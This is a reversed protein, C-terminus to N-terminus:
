FIPSPQMSEWVISFKRPQLVKKADASPKYKTLFGKTMTYQTGVSLLTIVGNAVYVDNAVKMANAWQDFFDISPSDSQINYGQVIPNNVKGGSLFGDVGMLTEVTDVTDTDFIDDVAFGQLQQPTNFLGTVSMMIIANASTISAM